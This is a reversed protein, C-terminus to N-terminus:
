HGSAILNRALVLGIITKADVIEGTTVLAIADDLGVRVITMAEEEVSQAEIAVESLDRAL